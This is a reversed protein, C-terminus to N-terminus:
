PRESCDALLATPEFLEPIEKRLVPDAAHDRIQQTGASQAEGDEVTYTTRRVDWALVVGPPESTTATLVAIGGSDDCRATMPAAGGDTAVFPLLPGGDLTVETIGDYLAFLHPQFGGRPHSGGDVRLLQRPEGGHSALTVVRATTPDLDLPAVDVGAVGSGDRVLLGGACPGSEPGLKVTLAEGGSGRLRALPGPLEDFEDTTCDRWQAASPPVQPAAEGCGALALPAALAAATLTRRITRM